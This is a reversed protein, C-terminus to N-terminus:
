RKRRRWGYGVLGVLGAGLLLFTSPEPIPFSGRVTDLEYINGLGQTGFESKSLDGSTARYPSGGESKTYKDNWFYNQPDQPDGKITQFDLYFLDMNEIQEILAPDLDFSRYAFAIEVIRNNNPNIRSFLVETGSPDDKIKGDSIVETDDGNMEHEEWPNDEKTVNLGSPPQGNILGRGGVDTDTDKFGFNSETGFTTGHKLEPQDIRFLFGSRGDSDSSFRVGYEYILGEETDVGDSTSKDRGFMEISFYAYNTDVGMMAQVIDLNEFYEQSAFREEGGPLTRVQYNQVTPREYLEIQYSDAGPDITWYRKGDSAFFPNDGTVADSVIMSYVPTIPTAETSVSLNLLLGIMSVLITLHLRMWDRM